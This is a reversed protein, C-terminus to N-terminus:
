NQVSVMWKSFETLYKKFGELHERPFGYKAPADALVEMFCELWVERQENSIQFPIHRSRLRPEGRNQEFLNPGGLIGIFFWASRQTGVEIQSRFVHRISSSHLKKYFDSIMRTISEEGMRAFIENSPMTISPFPPEYIVRNSM